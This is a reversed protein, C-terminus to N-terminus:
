AKQARLLYKKATCRVPRRPASGTASPRREAVKVSSWDSRSAFPEPSSKALEFAALQLRSSTPFGYLKNIEIMYKRRFLKNQSDSSAQFACRGRTMRALRADVVARGDRADAHTSSLSDIARCEV